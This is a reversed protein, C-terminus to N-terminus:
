VQRRYSVWFFVALSTWAVAYILSVMVTAPAVAGSLSNLLDRVFLAIALVGALITGILAFLSASRVSMVPKISSKM